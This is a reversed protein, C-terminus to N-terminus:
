YCEEFIVMGSGRQDFCLFTTMSCVVGDNGELSQQLRKQFIESSAKLGFLLKMLRYRGQTTEFTTLLSVDTM